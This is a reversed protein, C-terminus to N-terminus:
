TTGVAIKEVQTVLENETNAVNKHKASVARAKKEIGQPTTRKSFAAGILDEVRVDEGRAKADKVILLTEELFKVSDYFADSAERVVTPQLEDPLREILFNLLRRKNFSLGKRSSSIQEMWLTLKKQAMASLTVKEFKEGRARRPRATKKVQGIKEDLDTAM